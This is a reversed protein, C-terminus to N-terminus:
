WGFKVSLCYHMKPYHEERSRLVAQSSDVDLCHMSAALTLVSVLFRNDGYMGNKGIGDWRGHHM